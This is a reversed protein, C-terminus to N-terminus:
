VETTPIGPNELLIVPPSEIVRMAKWKGQKFRWWFILSLVMFFLVAMLSGIILPSIM